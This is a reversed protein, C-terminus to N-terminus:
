SNSRRRELNWDSWELALLEGERAGTDLALHDLVGLRTSAAAELLRRAEEVSLPRIERHPPTPLPITEALNTKLMGLTIARGLLQRLRKGARFAANRSHLKEVAEYMRAVDWATVEQIPRSGM